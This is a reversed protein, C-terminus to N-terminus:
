HIDFKELLNLCNRPPWKSQAIVQNRIWGHYKRVDTYVGPSRYKHKSKDDCSYGWSVIGCLYKQGRVITDDECTLPGGSDGACVDKDGTGGACIMGNTITFDSLFPRCKQTDRIALRAKQLVDSTQGNGMSGWGSVYAWSPFKLLSYLTNCM